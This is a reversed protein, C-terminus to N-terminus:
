GDGEEGIDLFDELEKHLWDPRNGHHNVRSRTFTVALNGNKDPVGERLAKILALEMSCDNEIARRAKERDAAGPEYDRSM